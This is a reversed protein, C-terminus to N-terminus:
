KFSIVMFLSNLQKNQIRFFLNKYHNTSTIPISNTKNQKTHVTHTRALNNYIRLFKHVKCVHDTKLDIM